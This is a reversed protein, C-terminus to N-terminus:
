CHMFMCELTLSLDVQKCGNLIPRSCYFLLSSWGVCFLFPVQHTYIQEKVARIFFIKITERLDKFPDGLESDGELLQLLAMFLM